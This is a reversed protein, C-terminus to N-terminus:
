RNVLSRSCHSLSYLRTDSRTDLSFGSNHKVSPEAAIILERERETETQGM